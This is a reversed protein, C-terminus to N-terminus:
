IKMLRNVAEEMTSEKKVFCFRLVQNNKEKTYFASVPISAVGYEKTLRTALEKETEDSIGDYRYLQFYSGYSPLASFKTHQMLQQFYDRKQQLENGLHLYNEKQQIFEALAYQPASNSTFCNFQHVKRFEKMLPAPAICYGLKWGTCHYTKGFSFFVFSRKLLDPHRLISQHQLGDFIIHEYVEDSFIFIGTGEVIQQLQEIDKKSCVSGTPNNPTNFIIV